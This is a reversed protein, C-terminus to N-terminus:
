LKLDRLLSMARKEDLPTFKKAKGLEGIDAIQPSGLQEGENILEATDILKIAKDMLKKNAWMVTKIDETTAEVAIINDLRPKFYRIFFNAITKHKVYKLGVSYSNNVIDLAIQRLQDM